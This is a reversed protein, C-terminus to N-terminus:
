PEWDERCGKCHHHAPDAVGETLPESGLGALGAITRLRHGPCAYITQTGGDPLHRTVAHVAPTERGV